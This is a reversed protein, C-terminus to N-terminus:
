FPSTLEGAGNATGGTLSSGFTLAGNSNNSTSGNNSGGEPAGSGTGGGGGGGGGIAGIETNGTIEAFALSALGNDIRALEQQIETAFAQDTGVLAQAALGLGSGIARQQDTDACPAPGQCDKALSAIVVALAAHNGLVMDRIARMLSGGGNPNATFLQQLQTQLAQQQQSPQSGQQAQAPSGLMVGALLVAALGPAWYRSMVSRM